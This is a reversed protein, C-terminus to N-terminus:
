RQGVAGSRGGHPDAVALRRRRERREARLAEALPVRHADRGRDRVRDGVREPTSCTSSGSVGARTQSSSRHLRATRTRAGRTADLLRDRQRASCPSSAFTSAPPWLRTGSSFMRSARGADEDVDVAQRSSSTSARRVADQRDAREHALRSELASGSIARQRERSHRGCTPWKTSGCGRCPRRSSRGRRRRAGLQREREGREAARDDCSRPPGRRDGASSNKTVCKVVASSGSSSSTSVSDPRGGAPSAAVRELLERLAM